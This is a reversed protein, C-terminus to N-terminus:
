PIVGVVPFLGSVVCFLIFVESVSLKHPKENRRFQGVRGPLKGVRGPLKGVRGPLKGVRSLIHGVSSITQGIHSRTYWFM